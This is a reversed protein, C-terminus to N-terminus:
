NKTNKITSEKIQRRIRYISNTTEGQVNQAVHNM